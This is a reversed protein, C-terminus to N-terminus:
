FSFGASLGAHHLDLVPVLTWAVPKAVSAGGLDGRRYRALTKDLRTRITFQQLEGILIGTATVIGGTQWRGFGAGILLGMNFVFSGAPVLPGRGFAESAADRVLIREAAAVLGCRHTEFRSREVIRALRPQDRLVAPPMIAVFALGLMSAGTGFASDVVADRSDALGLRVANFAVLGSYIGTWSWTWIRVRQADENVRRQIFALREAPCDRRTGCRRGRHCRM